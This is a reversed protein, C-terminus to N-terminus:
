GINCWCENQIPYEYQEDQDHQTPFITKKHLYMSSIKEPAITLSNQNFWEGAEIFKENLRRNCIDIDKDTNYICM